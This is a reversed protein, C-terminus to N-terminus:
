KARGIFRASFDTFEAGGDKKCQRRAAREADDYDCATVNHEMEEWGTGYNASYRVKYTTATCLDAAAAHQKAPSLLTTM